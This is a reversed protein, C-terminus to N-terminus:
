KKQNEHIVIQGLTIITGDHSRIDTDIAAGDLNDYVTTNSAVDWVKLRLRDQKKNADRDGDVAALLFGYGPEGNVTGTGKYTARSGSVVLWEYTSSHFTFGGAEFSFDTKGTPIKAGKLYRSQFGFKAEGQATPDAVYAGPFSFVRGAGTVFPGDPDYVVVYQFDDASTTGGDKDTVALRVTHIGPTTYTHTASATGGGAADAVACTSGTTV